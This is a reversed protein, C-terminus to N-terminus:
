FLHIIIGFKLVLRKYDMGDHTKAETKAMQFRSWKAFIIM